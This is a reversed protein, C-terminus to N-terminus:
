YNMKCFYSHIYAYCANNCESSYYGMMIIVVHTLKKTSNLVDWVLKEEEVKEGGRGGMRVIFWHRRSFKEDIFCEDALLITLCKRGEKPKHFYSQVSTFYSAM